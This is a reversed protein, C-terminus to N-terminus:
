FVVEMRADICAHMYNVAERVSSYFWKPGRVNEIEVWFKTPPDAPARDM